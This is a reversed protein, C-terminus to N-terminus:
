TLFIIIGPTGVPTYKGSLATLGGTKRNIRFTATTTRGRTARWYLFPGSPISISAPCRTIAGRDCEEGAVVEAHRFRRASRFFRSATPAAPRPRTCSDAGDASVTVESTFNTGAFGKPLSSITQKAALRGNAPDYDFTVLTSRGRGAAFVVLPRQSSVYFAAAWRGTTAGGIGSGHPRLHAKKPMLSGFSSATWHLDPDTHWCSNARPIRRFGHPPRPVNMAPQDCLQGSLASTAIPQVPWGGQDAPQHVDPSAKGLEGGAWSLCCPWRAARALNAVLVSSARFPPRRLHAPGARGEPAQRHNLM